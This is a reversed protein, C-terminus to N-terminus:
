RDGSYEYIGNEDKVIITFFYAEDPVVKGDMDKGDWFFTQDGQGISDENAISKILGHDPDYVNM